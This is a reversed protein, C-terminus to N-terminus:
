NQYIIGLTKHGDEAVQNGLVEGQLNDSPATRFYLPNIGTFDASTNSPSVTLIGSGANGDLSLKTVSSSAAGVMATVGASQLNTISTEYAKNDLDGEDESTLEVQVGADAENIQSVALQVGAEMPAGLFSLSGTSPLLSGLQLTLDVDAPRETNTGEDSEPAPT